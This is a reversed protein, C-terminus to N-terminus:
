STYLNVFKLSGSLLLLLRDLQFCNKFSFVFKSGNISIDSRKKACVYVAARENYMSYVNIYFYINDKMLKFVIEM